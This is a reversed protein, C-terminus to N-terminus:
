RFAQELHYGIIEDLEGASHALWNAYREHLEARTAKAVGLYAADRILIHRFRFGDDGPILSRDPEILDRRVLALLMSGVPQEESLSNVAGATFERGIVAAQELVAREEEALRDLRAALLAHITPPIAAAPSGEVALALMQKLIPHDRSLPEIDALVPYAAM